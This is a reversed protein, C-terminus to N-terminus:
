KSLMFIVCYSLLYHRQVLCLTVVYVLISVSVSEGLKISSPEVSGIILYLSNVLLFNGNFKIMSGFKSCQIKFAGLSFPTEFRAM